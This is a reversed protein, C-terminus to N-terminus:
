NQGSRPRWSIDEDLQNSKMKLRNKLLEADAGRKTQLQAQEARSSSRPELKARNGASQWGAPQYIQPTNTIDSGHATRRLQAATERSWRSSNWTHAGDLSTKETSIKTTLQILKSTTQQILKSTGYQILKSMKEGLSPEDSRLEHRIQDACSLRPNGVAVATAASIYSPVVKM